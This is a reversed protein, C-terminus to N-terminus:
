EAGVGPLITVTATRGVILRIDPPVADLTVRVPVRQALRVWSVTPTVNPLLNASTVRDRDEIGSAISQVHGSIVQEEGMLKVLASQGVRIDHLKTEEFYGEVRFSDAAILALVPKGVTVADGVQLMLDSLIGDAPAVVLTRELDLSALDRAVLAQAVEAGALEVKSQWQERVEKAVLEGMAQNRQADRQTQALTARKATLVAEAQRLALVYRAQDIRFLPQGRKVSQHDDVAVETVIGSVDPAVEIIDARVRGEPTWPEVQYYVWVRWGAVAAVGVLTLTLVPRLIKAVATKISRDNM